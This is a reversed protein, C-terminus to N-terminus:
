CIYIYNSLFDFCKIDLTILAIERKERTQSWQAGVGGDRSFTNAFGIEPFTWGASWGM